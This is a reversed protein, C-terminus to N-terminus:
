EEVRDVEGDEIAKADGVDEGDIAGEEGHESSGYTSLRFDFTEM